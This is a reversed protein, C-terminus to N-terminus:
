IGRSPIIEIKETSLKEPYSMFLLRHFMRTGCWLPELPFSDNILVSPILRTSHFHKSILILVTSIEMFELRTSALSVFLISFSRFSASDYRRAKRNQIVTTFFLFFFFLLVYGAAIETPGFCYSVDRRSVEFREM